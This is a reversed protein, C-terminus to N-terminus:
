VLNMQISVVITCCIKFTVRTDRKHGHHQLCEGFLTKHYPILLDKDSCLLESENRYRDDLNTSVIVHDLNHIKEIEIRQWMM